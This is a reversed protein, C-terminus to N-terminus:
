VFAIVMGSRVWVLGVDGSDLTLALFNLALKNKLLFLPWREECSHWTLLSIGKESM